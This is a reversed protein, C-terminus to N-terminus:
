KGRNDGGFIRQIDIEEAQAEILQEKTVGGERLLRQAAYTGEIYGLIGAACAFGKYWDDGGTDAQFFDLDPEPAPPKTKTKKDRAM